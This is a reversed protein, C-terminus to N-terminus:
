LEIMKPISLYRTGDVGCEVWILRGVAHSQGLPPDNVRRNPNNRYDVLNIWWMRKRDSPGVRGELPALTTGDYRYLRDYTLSGVVASADISTVRQRLDEHLTFVVSSAVADLTMLRDLLPRLLATKLSGVIPPAKRRVCVHRRDSWGCPPGDWRTPELARYDDGLTKFVTRKTAPVAENWARTLLDLSPGDYVLHHAVLSATDGDLCVYCLPREYLAFLSRRLADRGRPTTAHRVHDSVDYPGFRLRGDSRLRVTLIPHTRFFRDIREPTAVGPLALECSYPHYLVAKIFDHGFLRALSPVEVGLRMALARWRGPHYKSGPVPIPCVYTAEDDVVEADFRPTRRDVLSAVTPRAELVALNVGTRQALQMALLSHGGLTFWDDHIGVREVGLLEQWVECMAAEEPTRPADFRTPAEVDPLASRDVKGTATLPFTELPHIASPVMYSPLRQTLLARLTSADVTAPTVYAVLRDATPAVVVAAGEVGDCAALRGEVEALEVRYGRVKIMRNARGRLRFRSNTTTWEALDGTDFPWAGDDDDLGGLTLWERGATAVLRGVVGPTTVPRGDEDHIALGFAPEPTWGDQEASRFAMWLSGSETQGYADRAGLATRLADDSPEGFLAVDVNALWSDAGGVHRAYSPTVFARAVGWRRVLAAMRAGDLWEAKAVVVLRHGHSLAVLHYMTQSHRISSWHVSPALAVQPRAQDDGLLATPTFEFAKPRGTTGSTCLVLAEADDDWRAPPRVDAAADSPWVAEVVGANCFAAMAHRREAPASADIPLAARGECWAAVLWVFFAAANTGVLAVRGPPRRRLARRAGGVAAAFEPGTLSRQADVLLPGDDPLSLLRQLLADMRCKKLNLEDLSMM